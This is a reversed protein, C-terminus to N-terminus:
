PTTKPRFEHEFNDGDRCLAGGDDVRKCTLRNQDSHWTISTPECKVEPQETELAGAENFRAKIDAKCISFRTAGCDTAQERKGTGDAGFCITGSRM